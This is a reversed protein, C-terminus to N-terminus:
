SPRIAAQLRTARDLDRRIADSQPDLAQAQRLLAIAQDLAGDSMQDLADARLRNARAPDRSADPAPTTVRAPATRLTVKPKPSGPIRLVKGASLSEPSSLGNYRALAYFLLPDGLFRSALGSLNEGPKVTYLYSRSGLLVEPDKEIQALLKRSVSHRPHSSLVARLEVAAKQDDGVSLFHMALDVREQPSPSRTRLPARPIASTSQVRSGASIGSPGACGALAVM